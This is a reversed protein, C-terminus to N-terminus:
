QSDYLSSYIEYVNKGMEDKLAKLKTPNICFVKENLPPLLNVFCSFSFAFVNSAIIAIFVSRHCGVLVWVSNNRNSELSIYLLFNNIGLYQAIYIQKSNPITDLLADVDFVSYSHQLWAFIRSWAMEKLSCIFEFDFSGSLFSFTKTAKSREINRSSCFQLM